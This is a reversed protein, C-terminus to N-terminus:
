KQDRMKSPERLTNWRDGCTHARSEPASSEEEKEREQPLPYPSPGRRVMKEAKECAALISQLVSELDAYVQCNVFRLVRYGQRALIDSRQWDYFEQKLHTEGDLEVVLRKEFCLFDVIYSGIPAQRRFKFGGLQRDRLAGWLKQEARTQPHRLEKANRRTEPAIMKRPDWRESRTSVSMSGEGKGRGWSLSDDQRYWRAAEWPRRPIPSEVDQAQPRM